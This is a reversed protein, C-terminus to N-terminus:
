VGLLRKIEEHIATYDNNIPVLVWAGGYENLPPNYLYDYSVNFTEYGFKDWDKILNYLIDTDKISLDTYIKQTIINYATQAVFPNFLSKPSLFAKIANQMIIQQRYSRAFDSGEGNDGKRSRAYILAKEGDMIQLGQEFVVTTVGPLGERDLPYDTDTFGRPVNVEVGGVSDIAWVLADFDVRFIRSITLGTIEKIKTKMQEQGEALYYANLKNGKVWLDRPLSTMLVKNNAPNYSIIQIVDTRYFTDNPTRRDIGLLLVNFAKSSNLPESAPIFKEQILSGFNGSREDQLLAEEKPATEVGNDLFSSLDNLDKSLSGSDNKNPKNKFLAYVGVTVTLFLVAAVTGIIVGKNMYMIIHAFTFNKFLM